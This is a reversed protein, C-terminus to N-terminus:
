AKKEQLNKMLLFLGSLILLDAVNIVPFYGITIFDIVGNYVVRDFVNSAGGAFMLTLALVRRANGSRYAQQLYWLVVLLIFNTLTLIAITPISIGFAAAENVFREFRFFGFAFSIGDEPLSNQAFWKTGRDLVLAVTVALLIWQARARPIKQEM